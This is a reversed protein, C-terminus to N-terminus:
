YVDEESNTRVPELKLLCEIEIHQSKFLETLNLLAQAVTNVAELAQGDWKVGTFTNDKILTSPKSKEELAKELLETLKDM